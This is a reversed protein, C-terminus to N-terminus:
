GRVEQLFAILDDLQEPEYVCGEFTFYCCADAGRNAYRVLWKPKNPSENIRDALAEMPCRPADAPDRATLDHGLSEPTM